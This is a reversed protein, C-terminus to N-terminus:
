HLDGQAVKIHTIGVAMGNCYASIVIKDTDAYYSAGTTTSYIQTGNLYLKTSGTAFDHVYCLVDGSSPTFNQGNGGVIARWQSDAQLYQLMGDRTASNSKQPGFTRNGNGSVSALAGFTYVFSYAKTEDYTIGGSYLTQSSSTMTVDQDVISSASVIVTFTDSKGGYSVTITSTGVTLTGSLVYDTSPIVATSSDEYTATVVLDTKLSDLSDTAYVTSTQTYVASISDLGLPPYFANYLGNYYTQGNGDIYVVKEALQLLADKIDDTLGDGPAGAIWGDNEDYIITDGDSVDAPQIIVDAWTTAYNTGSSKVLGQGTTGGSPISHIDALDAFQIISGSSWTNNYLSLVYCTDGNLCTFTHRDSATRSTMIYTRGLRIVIIIKHAQYAAEVEASTSANYEAVFVDAGSPSPTNAIENIAEVLNDKNETDLETLDGIQERATKDKVDYRQGNIVLSSTPNTESM